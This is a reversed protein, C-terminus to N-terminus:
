AATSRAALAVRLSSLPAPIQEADLSAVRELWELTVGELLAGDCARAFRVVGGQMDSPLAAIANVLPRAQIGLVSALLGVAIAPPHPAPLVHACVTAGLARVSVIGTAHMM